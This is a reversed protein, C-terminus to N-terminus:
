KIRKLYGGPSVSILLKHDISNQIQFDDNMKLFDFVATKPNDGVSWSRDKYFDEPMDEILTDFVVLYSDRTVFPSYLKLEDAVHDHTHNSDLAVLIT